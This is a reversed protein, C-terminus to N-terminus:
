KDDQVHHPIIQQRLWHEPRMAVINIENVSPKSCATGLSIKVSSEKGDPSEGEEDPM